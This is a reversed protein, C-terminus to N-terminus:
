VTLVSIKGDQWECFNEHAEIDIKIGKILRRLLGNLAEADMSAKLGQRAEILREGM